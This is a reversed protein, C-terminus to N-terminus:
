IPSVSNSSLIVSVDAFMRKAWSKEIAFKNYRSMAPLSASMERGMISDSDSTFFLETRWKVVIQSLFQFERPFYNEYYKRIGNLM